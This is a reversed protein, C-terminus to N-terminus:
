DANRKYNTINFIKEYAQQAAQESKSQPKSYSYVAKPLISIKGVYFRWGWWCNYKNLSYKIERLLTKYKWIYLNLVDKRM